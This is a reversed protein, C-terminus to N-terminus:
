DPSNLPRTRAVVAIGALTLAAAVYLALAPSRALADQLGAPQDRSVLVGCVNNLLHALMAPVVSRARSTLWALAIGLLFTPLLQGLNMHYAAFVGASMVCSILPVFRTDFARFLVGRFMVEECVAPMVAIAFLTVPLSPLEVVRRLPEATGEPLPLLDILRLNLYWASVGILAAGLFFGPAARALGLQKKWIVAGAIPLVLLLVEAIIALGVPPIALAVGVSGIVILTGLTASLIGLAQFPSFAADSGM